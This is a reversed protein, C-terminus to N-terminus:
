APRSASRRDLWSRPRGGPARRCDDAVQQLVGELERPGTGGHRQPDARAGLTHEDLNLVFAAAEHSSVDVVQEARELLAAGVSRAQAEAEREASPAGVRVVAPDVRAVKGCRPHTKVSSRGRM